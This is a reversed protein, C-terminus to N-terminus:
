AEEELESLTTWEGLRDGLELRKDALLDCKEQLLIYDRAIRPDATDNELQFIETELAEILSELEAIRKKRAANESRQKKSRYHGSQQKAAATERRVPSPLPAERNKQQVYSDYRGPYVAIHDNHMEAIKDPFKNLLYRDHSIILLTGTYACLATDLAEKTAADLHNTPEDMLLVNGCSLILLAFKLKAREGGSLAGVRKYVNEGTLGVNGLVTRITHEYERPFRDWLEDLASKEPSFNLEEQEFYSIDTNKGWYINGKETPIIGQLAKLFSSKGIGNLGILAVKDGRRLSFDVNSCLEKRDSGEGVALALKEVSLVDQVPERKYTFRINAPKAPPRPKETLEMKDLAKQRSQARATTSARVINRAIFDKMEAIEAQQMEYEKRLREDREAKQVVYRSYNGSYVDLRNQELAWISTCLQDLFYRDHSVVLLAGKYSRLYEELWLLTKFDLHNTPEDLILLEPAELLLKCLALRTKEGGSLTHIPTATDVGLFGMGNLVTSIKVDILYGDLSEFRTQIGAYLATLEEYGAARNTAASIQVELERMQRQMEYLPSFVGRMESLISGNNDLGSNQRLFGLSKGSLSLTGGDVELDQCIINLLTSKGAGNPGVLGIKDNDEIKATVESLVLHAGFSKTINELSLIM